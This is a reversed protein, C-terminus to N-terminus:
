PMRDGAPWPMTPDSADRGSSSGWRRGQRLLGVAGNGRCGAAYLAGAAAGARRRLAPISLPARSASAVLPRRPRTATAVAAARVSPPRCRPASSCVPSVRRMPRAAAAVGIHAIVRRRTVVRSRACTGQRKGAPPPPPPAARCLGRSKPPLPPASVSTTKCTAEGCVCVIHRGAAWWAHGGGCVCTCFNNQNKLQLRPRVFIPRRREKGRCVASGM